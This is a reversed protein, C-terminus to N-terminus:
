FKFKRPSPDVNEKILNKDLEPDSFDQKKQVVGTKGDKTKAMDMWQLKDQNNLDARTGLASGPEYERVQTLSSDEAFAVTKAARPKPQNAAALESAVQKTLEKVFELYKNKLEESISIKMHNEILNYAHPSRQMALFLFSTLSCSNIAKVNHIFEDKTSTDINFLFHIAKDLLENNIENKEIISAVREIVYSVTSGIVKKEFGYYRSCYQKILEKNYGRNNFKKPYYM